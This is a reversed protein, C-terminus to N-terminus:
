FIGRKKNFVTGTSVPPPPSHSGGQQWPRRAQSPWPMAGWPCLSLSPSTADEICRGWTGGSPGPRAPQRKAAGPHRVMCLTCCNM